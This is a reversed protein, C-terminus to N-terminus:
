RKVLQHSDKNLENLINKQNVVFLTTNQNNKSLIIDIQKM